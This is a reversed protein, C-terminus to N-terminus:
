VGGRSWPRAPPWADGPAHRVIHATFMNQREGMPGAGPRAECTNKEAKHLLGEPRAPIAPSERRQADDRSSAPSEAEQRIAFVREALETAGHRTCNVRGLGQELEKWGERQLGTRMLSHV